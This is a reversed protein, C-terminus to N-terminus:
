HLRHCLKEFEPQTNINSFLQHQQPSISLTEYPLHRLLEKISLGTSEGVINLANEADNRNLLMPFPQIKGDIDKWLTTVGRASAKITTNIIDATLLPMDCPVILLWQTKLKKVATAIGVMPGGRTVLDPLCLIDKAKIKHDSGSIVVQSCVHKLLEYARNIFTQGDYVAQAKDSGFRSSMGGALILGTM